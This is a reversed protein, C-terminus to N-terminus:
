QAAALTVFHYSGFRQRLSVYAEFSQFIEKSRIIRLFNTISSDKVQSDASYRGNAIALIETGSVPVFRDPYGAVVPIVMHEAFGQDEIV